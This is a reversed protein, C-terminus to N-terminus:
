LIVKSVDLLPRVMWKQMGIVGFSALGAPGRSSGMGWRRCSRMLSYYLKEDTIDGGGPPLRQMKMILNEVQDDVHHGLVLTDCGEAVMADFTLNSRALRAVEEFPAGLKPRPPYPNKGWPVSLSLNPIGLSASLKQCQATM